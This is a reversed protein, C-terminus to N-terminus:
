NELSHLKKYFLPLTNERHFTKLRSPENKEGESYMMCIWTRYMYMYVNGGGSNTNRYHEALYVMHQSSGM